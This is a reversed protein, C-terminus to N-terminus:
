VGARPAANADARRSGWAAPLSPRRYTRIAALAVPIATIVTMTVLPLEPKM